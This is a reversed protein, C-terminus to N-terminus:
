QHTRQVLPLYVQRLMMWIETGNVPERWGADNRTSLFLRDKFVAGGWVDVNYPDGFGDVNVQNWSTGNTTRWVETGAVVNYTCAYFYEDLGIPFAFLASRQDRRGCRLVYVRGERGRPGPRV